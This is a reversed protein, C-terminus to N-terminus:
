CPNKEGEKMTCQKFIGGDGDQFVRKVSKTWVNLLQKLYTIPDPAAEPFKLPRM